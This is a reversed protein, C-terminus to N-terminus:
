LEVPELVERAEVVLRSTERELLAVVAIILDTVSDEEEEDEDEFIDGMELDDILPTANGDKIQHGKDNRIGGILDEGDLRRLRSTVVMSDSPLTM